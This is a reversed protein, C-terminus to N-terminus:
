KQPLPQQERKRQPLKARQLYQQWRKILVAGHIKKNTGSIKLTTSKGVYITTKTKNIKVTTKAQAQMPVASLVLMFVLCVSLAKIISKKM